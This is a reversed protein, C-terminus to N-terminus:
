ARSDEHKTGRNPRPARVYQRGRYLAMLNVSLNSILGNQVSQGGSTGPIWFNWEGHRSLHRSGKRVTTEPLPAIPILKSTANARRCFRHRFTPFLARRHTRRASLSHRKGRRGNIPPTRLSLKLDRGIEQAVIRFSRKRKRSGNWSSSSSPMLTANTLFM